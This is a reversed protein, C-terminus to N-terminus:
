RKDVLVVISIPSTNRSFGWITPSEYVSGFKGSSFVSVSSFRNNGKVRNPSVQFVSSSTLIM